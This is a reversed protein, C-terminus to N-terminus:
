KQTMAENGSNVPIINPETKLGEKELCITDTYNNTLSATGSLQNPM